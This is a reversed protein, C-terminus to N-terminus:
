TMNQLSESAETLRTSAEQYAQLKDDSSHLLQAIHKLVHLIKKNRENQQEVAKVIIASSQGNTESLNEIRNLMDSTNQIVEVGKGVYALSEATAKSADGSASSVAQMSTRIDDAFGRIQDAMRQVENTISSGGDISANLALLNAEDAVEQIQELSQFVKTAKESIVGTNTSLLEVSGRVGTISTLAHEIEVVGGKAFSSIVGSNKELKSTAVPIKAGSVSILELGKIVKEMFKSQQETISAQVKNAELIDGASEAVNNSAKSVTQAHRMLKRNLFELLLIILVIFGLLLYLQMSAQEERQNSSRKLQEEMGKVIADVKVQSQLVLSQAIVAVQPAQSATIKGDAVDSAINLVEAMLSNMQDLSELDQATLHKISKIDEYREGFNKIAANIKAFNKTSATMTFDNIPIMVDSISAKFQGLRSQDDYVAVLTNTNASDRLSAFFIIGILVIFLLLSLMFNRNALQNLSVQNGPASETKENM